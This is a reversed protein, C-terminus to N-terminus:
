YASSVTLKSEGAAKDINKNDTGKGEAWREANFNLTSVDQYRKLIWEGAPVPLEEVEPQQIGRGRLTRLLMQDDPRLFYGISYRSWKGQEGPAPLVRHIASQLKGNTLRVLADGINVIAHGPLPKVWKWGGDEAYVQLGAIATWILTLSGFDTHPFLNLKSHDANPRPPYKMMRVMSQSTPKIKHFNQLEELQSTEMELAIGLATLLDECVRQVDRSLHGLQGEGFSAKLTQNYIATSSGIGMIDRCGVFYHEANDKNGYKDVASLGMPKYGFQSIRGGAGITDKMKEELPLDFVEKTTQLVDNIRELLADDGQVDLYFFGLTSSVSLLKNIEDSDKAVIKPYSIIQLPLFPTDSPLKPLQSWFTPDIVNAAIDIDSAAM